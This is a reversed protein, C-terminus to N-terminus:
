ALWRSLFSMDPLPVDFSLLVVFLFCPSRCFLSIMADLSLTRYLGAFLIHKVIWGKPFQELM